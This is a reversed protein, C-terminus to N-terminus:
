RAFVHRFWGRFQFLLGTERISIVASNAMANHPDLQVAQAISHTAAAILGLERECLALQLWLVARSADLALAEQATKLSTVFREYHFHVRAILWRFFWNAPELSVAKTFCYEARAENRALLVDARAIWMYPTNGREEFSADSFALAAKLDGTRALAVAKAALLDPERSFQELAKDAWLKAERFEGLEILMRVQGTWPVPNKPNFELMRAFSRLAGEFNGEEFATQAERLYFSEDKPVNPLERRLEGDADSEFELNSFRSM